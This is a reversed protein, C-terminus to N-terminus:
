GFFMEIVEPRDMYEYLADYRHNGVLTHYIAEHDPYGLRNYLEKIHDLMVKQLQIAPLFNSNYENAKQQIDVKLELARQTECHSAM